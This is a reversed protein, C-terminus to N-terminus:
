TLICVGDTQILKLDQQETVRDEFVKTHRQLRDVMCSRVYMCVYMRMDYKCLTEKSINTAKEHHGFVASVHLSRNTNSITVSSPVQEKNMPAVNRANYNLVFTDASV